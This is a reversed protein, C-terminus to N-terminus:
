KEGIYDFNVVMNIGYSGDKIKVTYNPIYMNESYNEISDMFRLVKDMNDNILIKFSYTSKEKDVKINSLTVSYISVGNQILLTKLIKSMNFTTTRSSQLLEIKKKSFLIDKKILIISNLINLNKRFKFIANSIKNDYEEIGHLLVARKQTYGSYIYRFYAFNILIILSVALVIIERTKIRNM